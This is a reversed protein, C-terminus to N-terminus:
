SVGSPVLLANLLTKPPPSVPFCPFTPQVPFVLTALNESKVHIMQFAPCIGEKKKKM